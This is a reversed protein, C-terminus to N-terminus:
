RSNGLLLRLSVLEFIKRILIFVNSNRAYVRWRTYDPLETGTM